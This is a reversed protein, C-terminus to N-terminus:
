ILKKAHMKAQIKTADLYAGTARVVLSIKENLSSSMLCVSIHRSKPMEGYGIFLIPLILSKSIRLDQLSMNYGNFIM